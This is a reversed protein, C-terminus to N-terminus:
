LTCVKAQYSETITVSHTGLYCHIYGREHMYVLGCAVGRAIELVADEEFPEHEFHLLRHLFGREVPEFVMCRDSLPPGYCASMLLLINPHRLNSSPFCFM